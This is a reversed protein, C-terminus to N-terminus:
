EYWTPVIAVIDQFAAIACLDAYAADNLAGHESQCEDLGTPYMCLLQYTTNCNARGVQTSCTIDADIDSLADRLAADSAPICFEVSGDNLCGNERPFSMKYTACLNNCLRSALEQGHIPWGPDAGDSCGDACSYTCTYNVIDEQTGCFVHEHWNATILGSSCTAGFGCQFYDVEYCNSSYTPVSCSQDNLWCVTGASAPSGPEGPFLEVHECTYGGRCEDTSECSQMCIGSIQSWPMPACSTGTPCQDDNPDCSSLGASTGAQACYGGPLPWNTGADLLCAYGDGCDSSQACARGIVMAPNDTDDKKDTDDKSLPTGTSSSCGYAAVLCILASLRLVAYSRTM